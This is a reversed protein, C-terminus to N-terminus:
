NSDLKRHLLSALALNELAEQPHQEAALEHAGPNRVGLMAGCFLANLGAQGDDGSRGEHRAVSLKRDRGAFAEDMLKTGSNKSGLLGRVRVELSM